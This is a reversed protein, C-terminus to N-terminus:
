SFNKFIKEAIAQMEEPSLNLKKNILNMDSEKQLPVLHIHAHPVEMGLVMMGIRRCPVAKELAAAVRKAFLLLGSYTENDLSFLYDNETKRPVVLTHGATLPRIDLFAFFNDDEAVKYSPLEGSAIKSFVTM